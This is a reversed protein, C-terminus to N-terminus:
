HDEDLGSSKMESKYQSPVSLLVRRSWVSYLTQPVWHLRAVHPMKSSFTQVIAPRHCCLKLGLEPCRESFATAGWDLVRAQFVEHLSSGPPSCDMPDSLTPCSQAVETEPMPSPFTVGSWYEQRSFGMYPPAQHAATWPTAFLRVRSFGSLPLLLLLPLAIKTILESEEPM